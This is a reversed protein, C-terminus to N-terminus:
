KVLECVLDVHQRHEAPLVSIIKYRLDHHQVLMSADVGTRWHIRISTRVKSVDVNAKVSESGSLHLINAWIMGTTIPEWADDGPLPTGWEDKAQVHRLISICKDYKQSNM